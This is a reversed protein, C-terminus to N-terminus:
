TTTREDKILGKYFLQKLADEVREVSLSQMLSPQHDREKTVQQKLAHYSESTCISACHDGFPQYRQVESPGFLGLVKCGSAAAMHMLGSDNGIFGYCDTLLAVNEMLSLGGCLNVLNVSKPLHHNVHAIVENAIMDDAKDGVLIFQNPFNDNEAIRQILEAFYTSPWIKGKWNAGPAIVMYSYSSLGHTKKIKQATLIDKKDLYCPLNEPLTVSSNATTKLASLFREVQHVHARHRKSPTHIVLQGRQKLKLCHGLISHRLDVVIDWDMKKCIQWLDWWHLSYRRKSIPLINVVCPFNKFYDAPLQGCAVTIKAKDPQLQYHEILAPIVASSLVADGIRTSTIFLINVM